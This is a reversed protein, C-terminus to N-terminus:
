PESRATLGATEVREKAADYMAVFRKAEAAEVTRLPDVWSPPIPQYRLWAVVQVKPADAPVPVKFHVVDGGAAFDADGEVGVSRTQDVHPGDTRYGKPLLRNDKAVGVMRTLYTTPKGDPGLPISEYVAVQDAREITDVHPIAREDAIGVLRGEGDFAGSHFVVNRGSRVEVELWARRAPYGTPFKHGTLNEISVEFALTGSERKPESITLRATDDALQKRTARAARTLVEDPAEIGLEERNARFLDLMFANGGLFAHAAFDPRVPINFERGAPNRAIRMSGSKPMHCDQCNKADASAEGETSFSSNRWELYPTQEPFAKGGHATILTHCAGCLASEKVHEGYTPTFSSHMKMPTGSPEPYPGFITRELGIQIRGGFSAETGLGDPKTQHCVTCSVGDVALPDSALEAIPATTTEALKASHHAMPAHCTVCFREIAAANEPSQATEKAVQARWYPDRFSNAMMTGRWLSYPAVDEGTATTMAIALDSHSHCMSCGDSTAFAANRGKPTIPGRWAPGDPLAKKEESLPKAAVLALSALSLVAFPVRLRLVQWM